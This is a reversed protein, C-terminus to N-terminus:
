QRPRARRAARSDPGFLMDMCDRMDRMGAERQSASISTGGSGYRLLNLQALLHRHEFPMQITVLGASGCLALYPTLPSLLQNHPPGTRLLELQM